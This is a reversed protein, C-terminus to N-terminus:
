MVVCMDKVGAFCQTDEKGDFGEDENMSYPTVPIGAEVAEDSKKSDGIPTSPLDPSPCRKLISKEEM